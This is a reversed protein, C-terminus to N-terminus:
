KVVHGAAFQDCTARRHCYSQKTIHYEDIQITEFDLPSLPGGFFRSSLYSYHKVHVPLFVSLWLRALVIGNFNSNSTNTSDIHAYDRCIKILLHWKVASDQMSDTLKRAGLYKMFLSSNLKDSKRSWQM